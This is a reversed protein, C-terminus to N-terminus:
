NCVKGSKEDNQTVGMIELHFRNKSILSHNMELTYNVTLDGSSCTLSNNISSTSIGMIFQGFGTDYHNLHRRGKELILQSGYKGTRTITVMDQKEVRINTHTDELGNEDPETYEIETIDDTHQMMANTILEITDQETGSNQTGVISILVEKNEQTQAM